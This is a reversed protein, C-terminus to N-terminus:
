RTIEWSVGKKEDAKARINTCVGTFEDGHQTYGAIRPLALNSDQLDTTNTSQLLKVFARSQAIEKLPSYISSKIHKLSLIM